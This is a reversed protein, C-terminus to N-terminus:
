QYEAPGSMEVIADPWLSKAAELDAVTFVEVVVVGDVLGASGGGERLFDSEIIDELLAVQKPWKTRQQELPSTHDLAARPHSSSSGQSAPAGGPTGRNAEGCASLVSGIAVSLLLVICRRATM